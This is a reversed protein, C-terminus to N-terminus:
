DEKPLEDYEGTSMERDREVRQGIREVAKRFLWSELANELDFENGAVALDSELQADVKAHM